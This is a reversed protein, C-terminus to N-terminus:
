GAYTDRRRRSRQRAGRSLAGRGADLQRGAGEAAAPLPRRLGREQSPDLMDEVSAFSSAHFHHNIQMCGVDILKAGALRAAKFRRLAEDKDIDYVSKGEINLAYPRLSDGRGTETLGVAYLVGLPIGYSQAARAMERECANDAAASQSASFMFMAALAACLAGRTTSDENPNGRSARPDARREAPRRFAQLRVPVLEGTTPDLLTPVGAVPRGARGRQRDAGGGGGHRRRSLRGVDAAKGAHGPGGAAPARDRAPQSRRSPGPRGAEAVHPHHHDGHGGAAARSSPGQRGIVRGGQRRPRRDAPRRGIQVANAAAVIQGALQHTPPPVAASTRLAENASVPISRETPVTPTGSEAERDGASGQEAAPRAVALRDPSSRPPNDAGPVGARPSAARQGGIRRGAGVGHERRSARAGRRKHRCRRYPRPSARRRGSLPPRNSDGRGCRRGIASRTATGAAHNRGGRRTADADARGFREAERPRKAARRHRAGALRRTDDAVPMTGPADPAAAQLLDALHRRRRLRLRLTVGSMSTPARQRSRPFPVAGLGRFSRQRLLHARPKASRGPSPATRALAPQGVGRERRGCCRARRHSGGGLGIAPSLRAAARRGSCRARRAAAGAAASWRSSTRRGASSPLSCRCLRLASPSQGRMRPHRSSCPCRSRAALLGSRGAAAPAKRCRSVPRRRTEARDPRFPWAQCPRLALWPLRTSRHLIPQRSRPRCRARPMRRPIARMRPSLRSGHSAARPRTRRAPAAQPMARGWAWRRETVSIAPQSPARDAAAAMKTLLDPFGSKAGADTSATRPGSEVPLGSARVAAGASLNAASM